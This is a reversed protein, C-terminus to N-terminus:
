LIQAARPPFDVADVRVPGDRGVVGEVVSGARVDVGDPGQAEAVDPPHREIALRAIHVDRVDPLVVPLLDIKLGGAKWAHARMDARLRRLAQTFDSSVSVGALIERRVGPGLVSEVLACAGDFSVAPM